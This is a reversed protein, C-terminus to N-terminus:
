LAELWAKLGLAEAEAAMRQALAEAGGRLIAHAGPYDGMSGHRGDWELLGIREAGLGFWGELLRLRRREGSQLEGLSSVTAELGEQLRPIRM